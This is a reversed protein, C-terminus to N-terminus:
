PAQLAARLHQWESAIDSADHVTEAILDQIVAQLRRKVVQIAAAGAAPSEFPTGQIAEGLLPASTAHLAPQVVRLEFLQWHASRGSSQFHERVRRIATDLLEAGWARDFADDLSHGTDNCEIAEICDLPLHTGGRRRKARVDDIVYNKVARLM